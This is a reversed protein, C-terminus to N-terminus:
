PKVECKMQLSYYELYSQLIPELNKHKGEQSYEELKQDFYKRMPFPDDVVNKKRVVLSNRLLKQEAKSNPSDTCSLYQSQADFFQGLQLESYYLQGQKQKLSIYYEIDVMNVDLLVKDQALLDDLETAMGNDELPLRGDFNFDLDDFFNRRKISKDNMLRDYEIKSYKEILITYLNRKGEEIFELHLFNHIKKADTFHIITRFLYGILLLVVIVLYTGTIVLRSYIFESTVSDRLLSIIMLSGITSLTFYIIPYLKSNTFLLKYTQSEKIAINGILFGVVALTMSIITAVNTARQDIIIKASLNSLSLINLYKVDISVGVTYAIIVLLLILWWRNRNFFYQTCRKKVSQFNSDFVDKHKVAIMRKVRYRLWNEHNRFLQLLFM